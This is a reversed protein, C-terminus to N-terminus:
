RPSDYGIGPYGALSDIRTFQTDTTDFSVEKGRVARLEKPTLELLDRGALLVRGTVTATPALLGPVAMATVSKGCGSEGVVGLTEGAAIRINGILAPHKQSDRTYVTFYLQKTRALKANPVNAVRKENVFVKVYAGDAGRAQLAMALDADVEPYLPLLAKAARAM